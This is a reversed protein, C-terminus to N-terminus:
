AKYSDEHYVTWDNICCDGDQEHMLALSKVYHKIDNKLVKPIEFDGIANESDNVLIRTAITYTCLEKLSYLPTSIQVRVPPSEINKLHYTEKGNAHLYRKTIHDYFKWMTNSEEPDDIIFEPEEYLVCTEWEYNADNERKKWIHIDSGISNVFIVGAENEAM